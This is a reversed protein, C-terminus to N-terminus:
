MAVTFHSHCLAPYTPPARVTELWILKLLGRLLGTGVGGLSLPVVFRYSVMPIADDRELEQLLNFDLM